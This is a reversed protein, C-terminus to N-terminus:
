GEARTKTVLSVIREVEEGISMGTSDLYVADPLRVLPAVSRTSDRRDREIIEREIEALDGAVGKEKLQLWRRRAREVPTADLYVKVQADPFVVSGIDRGEMVLDRTDRYSRQLRWLIERIDRVSSVAHSSRSVEEARIAESVDEGDLIVRCGEAAPRLELRADVSM